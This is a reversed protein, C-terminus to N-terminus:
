NPLDLQITRTCPEPISYIVAKLASLLADITELPTQHNLTVRLTGDRHTTGIAEHAMPSGHFGTEITLLKSQPLQEVLAYPHQNLVNFSVVTIKQEAETHGYVVVEPIALLGDLLHTLLNVERERITSLGIEEIQAVSQMVSTDTQMYTSESPRFTPDYVVEINEPLDINQNGRWVLLDAYIESANIPLHGITQTIDLWFLKNYHRAIRGIAEIPFISGIVNSAHHTVILRINPYRQLLAELTNVDFPIADTYPVIYFQIGRERAMKRVARLITRHETASIVIGDGPQWSFSQIAQNLASTGDSLLQIHEPNPLSLLRAFAQQVEPTAAFSSNKTDTPQSLKELEPQHV